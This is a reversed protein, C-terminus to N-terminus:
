HARVDQGRTRLRGVVPASRLRLTYRLASSRSLMVPEAPRGLWVLGGARLLAAKRYDHAWRSSGCHRVGADNLAVANVENRGVHDLDVSTM